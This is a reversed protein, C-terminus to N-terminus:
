SQIYSSCIEFLAIQEHTFADFRAEDSGVLHSFVSAIVCQPVAKIEQMLKPLEHEQFGYRVMGTDIKIHINYQKEPHLAACRFM